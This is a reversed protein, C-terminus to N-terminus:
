LASMACWPTMRIFRCLEDNKICLGENKMCFEENKMCFGEHKRWFEDNKWLEDHKVWWCHARTIVSKRTSFHWALSSGAADRTWGSSTVPSIEFISIKWFSILIGSWCTLIRSWLIGNVVCRPVRVEHLLEGAGFCQWKLVSNMMKLVSNMMKLVFRTVKLVCNMMKSALNMM